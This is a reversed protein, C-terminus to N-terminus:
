LVQMVLHQVVPKRLYRLVSWAVKESVLNWCLFIFEVFTIPFTATAESGVRPAQLM